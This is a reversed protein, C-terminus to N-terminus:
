RWLHLSHIHKIAPVADVIEKMLVQTDIGRPVNEILIESISFIVPCARIAIIVVM